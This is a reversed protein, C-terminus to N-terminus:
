QRTSNLGRCLLAGPASLTGSPQTLPVLSTLSSLLITPIANSLVRTYPRSAVYASDISRLDEQIRRDLVPSSLFSYFLPWFGDFV